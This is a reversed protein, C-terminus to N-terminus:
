CGEPGRCYWPVDVAKLFFPGIRQLSLVLRILGILLSEGRNIPAWRPFPIRVMTVAKDCRDQAAVWGPGGLSSQNRYYFLKCTCGSPAAGSQIVLSSRKYLSSIGLIHTSATENFQFRHKPRDPSTESNLHRPDSLLDLCCTPRTINLNIQFNDLILRM